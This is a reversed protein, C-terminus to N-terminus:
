EIGAIMRCLLDLDKDQKEQLTEIKEKIIERDIPEHLAWTIRNKIEVIDYPNVYYVADGYIEPLSCVASVICTKGYRMAEEPPMGFGENLTPYLFIRCKSYLTELKEISVYDLLIFKEKNKIKKRIAKPVNGTVVTKDELMHDTYMEDLAKIARASNKEARNGSVMLIYKQPLDAVEGMPEAAYKYPTYYIGCVKDAIEPMNNMVSYYTHKSVCVLKDFIYTNQLYIRKHKHFMMDPFLIKILWKSKKAISGTFLFSYKDERCELARLGHVTCIRLAHDPLKIDTYKIPLGCYFVDYEENRLVNEMDHVTHVEILRIRYKKILDLVWQECFKEPDYFAAIICKESYNTVLYKFVIKTYEGGGHFRVSEYSQSCELDFLVKKM